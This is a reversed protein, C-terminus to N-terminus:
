NLLHDLEGAKIGDVLEGLLRRELFLTGQTHDNSNRMAVLSADSTQALQVCDSASSFGSKRWHGVIQPQDSADTSETM